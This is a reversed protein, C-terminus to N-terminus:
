GLAFTDAHRTDVVGDRKHQGPQAAVGGDGLDGQRPSNDQAERGPLAPTHERVVLM